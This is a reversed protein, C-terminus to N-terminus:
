PRWLLWRGSSIVIPGEATQCARVNVAPIQAGVARHTGSRAPASDVRRLLLSARDGAM